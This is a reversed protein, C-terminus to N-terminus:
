DTVHCVSVHGFMHKHVFCSWPLYDRLGTNRGPSARRHWGMWERRTSISVIKKETNNQTYIRWTLQLFFVQAHAQLTQPHFFQAYLITCTVHLCLSLIKRRSAKNPRLRIQHWSTIHRAVNPPAIYPAPPHTFDPKLAHLITQTLKEAEFGAQEARFPRKQGRKLCRKWWERRVSYM